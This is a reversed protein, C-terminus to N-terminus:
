GRSALYSAIIAATEGRLIRPGLSAFMCGADEAWKIEQEGWGGEPGIFLNINGSTASFDPPNIHETHFFYNNSGSVQTQRLAERLGLAEYIEPARARGSQEAAEHAIKSLRELRLGIKVTRESLIPVIRSVGCETAKQVVLEFNEKKLIACYLIVERESETQVPQPTGIKIEASNHGYNIIEGEAECATVEDVLLLRDGPSLRLVNRWQHVVAVDEIKLRTTSLDFKGIFRHRAM